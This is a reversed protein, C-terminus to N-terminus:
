WVTACTIRRTESRRESSVPMFVTTRLPPHKWFLSSVSRVTLRSAADPRGANGVPLDGAVVAAYGETLRNHRVTAGLM